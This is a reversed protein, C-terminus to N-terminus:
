RAPPGAIRHGRHDVAQVSILIWGPGEAPTASKFLLGGGNPVLARFSLAPDIPFFAHNGPPGLPTVGLLLRISGSAYTGLAAIQLNGPVGMAGRTGSSNMMNMTPANSMALDVEATSMEWALVGQENTSFPPRQPGGAPDPHWLQVRLIINPSARLYPLLQWDKLRTWLSPNSAQAVQAPSLWVLQAGQPAPRHVFLLGAALVLAVAALLTLLVRRRQGLLLQEPPQM